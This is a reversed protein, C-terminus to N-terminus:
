PVGCALQTHSPVESSAKSYSFVKGHDCAVVTGLKGNIPSRKAVDWRLMQFTSMPDFTGPGFSWGGLSGSPKSPALESVDALGAQLNTPTLYPGAAQLCDFFFLVTSYITQYMPAIGSASGNEAVYVRYAQESNHPYTPQGAAMVGYLERQAGPVSKAAMAGYNQIVGDLASSPGGFYSEMYWEPYYSARAAAEMFNIPSFPDTSSLIVTTVGSAKMQTIAETAETPLDQPNFTFAYSHTVNVGYTKMGTIIDQACTVATPENPYAIGFKRTRTRLYPSGAYKAHRGALQKGLMAAAAQAGKSCNPGPTYQWPANAQYWSNPELYWGFSLVGHDQLAKVYMETSDVFSIDAFAHLTNAATLADQQAHQIGGGTDETIFNGQGVFSKVSVTRGYLEFRSNFYKVYTALTHFTNANTGIVSRPIFSYLLALINSTAYRYTFNIHHATVGPSTAGGNNGSWKPLCVPTYTDGPIQRIGPGCKTGSVTVGPSGPAAPVTVGKPIVVASPTRSSTSAQVSQRPVLLMAVVAVVLIIVGWTASRVGAKSM